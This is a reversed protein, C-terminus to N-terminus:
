TTGAAALRQVRATALSRPVSSLPEYPSLSKVKGSSDTGFVGDMPNAITPSDSCSQPHECNGEKEEAQQAIAELRSSRRELGNFIRNIKSAM